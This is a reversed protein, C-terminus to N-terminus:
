IEDEKEKLTDVLEQFERTPFHERRVKTAAVLKYREMEYLEPWFRHYPGLGMLLPVYADPKFTSLTKPVRFIWVPHVGNTQDKELIKSVQTWWRKESDRSSGFISDM